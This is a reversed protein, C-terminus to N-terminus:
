IYEITAGPKIKLGTGRKPTTDFCVRAIKDINMLKNILDNKIKPSIEFQHYEIIDKKIVQKIARVLIIHGLNGNGKKDIYTVPTGDCLYPFIQYCDKLDNRYKIVTQDVIKTSKKILSLKKSTYEGGFRILLGPGPFPRRNVVEPPLRLEKAIKKITDKTLQKVPEIVKLGSKNFFDTPCNHYIKSKSHWLQTGQVVYKINNIKLYDVISKFYAKRFAERKEVPDSKFKVESYFFEKRNLVTLNFGLKLFINKVKLVEGERMFGTDIFLLKSKFGAKQLLAASTTSDVGGSVSIVVRENALGSLSLFINKIYKKADNM